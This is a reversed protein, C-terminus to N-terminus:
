PISAKETIGEALTKLSERVDNINEKNEDYVTLISNLIM